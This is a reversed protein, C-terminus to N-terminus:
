EAMGNGADMRKRADLIAQVEWDSFQQTKNHSLFGRYKKERLGSYPITPTAVLRFFRLQAIRMGPYLVITSHGCNAIELTLCGDFGAEVLNATMHVQLGLRAFSSRGEIQAAVDDPLKIYELTHALIFQGPSISISKVFDVDMEMSDVGGRSRPHLPDIAGYVNSFFIEFNHGLRLDIVSGSVQREFDILPVIRLKKLRLLDKLQSDPLLGSANEVVSASKSLGHQHGPDLEGFSREKAGRDLICFWEVVQLSRKLTEDARNVKAKLVGFYDRDSSRCSADGDCWDKVIDLFESRYNRCRYMWGALLIEAPTAARQGDNQDQEVSPIPLGDKLDSLLQTLSESSIRSSLSYSERPLDFRLFERFRHLLQYLGDDRDPEVNLAEFILSKEREMADSILERLSADETVFRHKALSLLLKIRFWAPPYGRGKVVPETLYCPECFLFAHLQAFFASPGAATISFADCWCEELWRILEHRKANEDDSDSYPAIWNLAVQVTSEGCHSEFRRWLAEAKCHFHGVEHLLSPWRCPNGLDVRPLSVYGAIEPSQVSETEVSLHKEAFGTLNEEKARSAELIFEPDEQNEFINRNSIFVYNDHAQDGLAETAFVEPITSSSKGATVLSRSQLVQRLYSVLEIPEHPRPVAVLVHTHIKALRALQTKLVVVRDDMSHHRKFMSVTNKIEESLLEQAESAIKLQATGRAGPRAAIQRSREIHSHLRVARELVEFLLLFDGKVEGAGGNIPSM